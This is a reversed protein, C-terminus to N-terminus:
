FFIFNVFWCLFSVSKRPSQTMQTINLNTTENCALGPSDWKEWTESACFHSEKGRQVDQSICLGSLDRTRAYRVPVTFLYVTQALDKHLSSSCSFHYFYSNPANSHHLLIFSKPICSHIALPRRFILKNINKDLYKETRWLYNFARGEWRM